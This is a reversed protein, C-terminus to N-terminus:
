LEVANSVFNSTNIYIKVEKQYNCPNYTGNAIHLNSEKNVECYKEKLYMKLIKMFVLMFRYSHQKLYFVPLRCAHSQLIFCFQWRNFSSIAWVIDRILMIYSSILWQVNDNSNHNEVFCLTKKKITKNLPIMERIQWSRNLL